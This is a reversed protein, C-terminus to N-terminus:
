RRRRRSTREGALGPRAKCKSRIREEARQPSDRRLAWKLIFLMDESSLDKPLIGDPEAAHERIIRPSVLSHDLVIEMAQGLERAGADSVVKSEPEGRLMRSIRLRMGLTALMLPPPKRVKVQRGSPLQLGEATEFGASTASSVTEM